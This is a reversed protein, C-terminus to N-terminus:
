GYACPGCKMGASVRADDVRVEECEGCTEGEVYFCANDLCQGCFGLMTVEDIEGSPMADCCESLFNM